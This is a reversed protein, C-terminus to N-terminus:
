SDGHERAQQEHAQQELAEVRQRERFGYTAHRITAEDELGSGVAGAVLGMVTAMLATDLYDGFGCPHGLNTALYDPTIFLLCALLVGSFLTAFFVVAGMTVTLLTSANRLTTPVDDRRAPTISPQWLGHRTVIWVVYIAIAAACALVIRWESLSDALMWISSYLVGFASGALSGGLAASLGWTLQWPRNARTMGLLLRITGIRHGLVIKGGVDHDTPDLVHLTRARHLHPDDRLPTRASGPAVIDAAMHTALLAVLRRTRRVLDAGGLAPLSVVATSDDAGIEAM